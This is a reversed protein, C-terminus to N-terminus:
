KVIENALMDSMYSLGVYSISKVKMEKPTQNSQPTEKQAENRQSEQSAEKPPTLDNPKSGDNELAEVSTNICAFVLSSLIFKKM